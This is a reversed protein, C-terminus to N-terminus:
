VMGVSPVKMSGLIPNQVKTTEMCVLKVCDMETNVMNGAKFPKKTVCCCAKKESSKPGKHSARRPGFIAPVQGGKFRKLAELLCSQRVEELRDIEGRLSQM